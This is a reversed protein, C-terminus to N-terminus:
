TLKEGPLAAVVGTIVLRGKKRKSAQAGCRKAAELIVEGKLYSELAPPPGIRVAEDALAVKLFFLPTTCAVAARM